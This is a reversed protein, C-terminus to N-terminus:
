FTPLLYSPVSQPLGPLLSPCFPIHLLDQALTPPPISLGQLSIAKPPQPNPHLYVMPTKSGWPWSNRHSEFIFSYLEHRLTRSSHKPGGAWTVHSSYQQLPNQSVSNRVKKAVRVSATMPHSVRWVCFTSGVSDPWLSHQIDGHTTM